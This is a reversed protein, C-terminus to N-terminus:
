FVNYLVIASLINAALTLTIVLLYRWSRSVAFVFVLLILVCMLTRFYIKDLEESIYESADRSVSVTIEEPFSAELENMKARIESALRLLNTDPEVSVSLSITNLGNIRHYSRPQSEQYRFDAIEGLYVM